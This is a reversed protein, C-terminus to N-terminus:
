NERQGVEVSGRAGDSQSLLQSQALHNPVLAKPLETGMHLGPTGRSPRWAVSLGTQPLQCPRLCALMEGKRM